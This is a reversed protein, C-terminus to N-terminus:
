DNSWEPPKSEIILEVSKFDRIFDNLVCVALKRGFGDTQNPHSFILQYLLRYDMLLVLTLEISENNFKIVVPRYRDLDINAKCINYTFACKCDHRKLPIEKCSPDLKPCEYNTNGQHTHWIFSMGQITVGFTSCDALFQMFHEQKAEGIAKAKESIM